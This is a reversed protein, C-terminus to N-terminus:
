ERSVEDILNLRRNGDKMRGPKSSAALVNVQRLKAAIKEPRPNDQVAPRCV